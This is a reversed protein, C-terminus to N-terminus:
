AVGADNTAQGRLRRNPLLDPPSWSCTRRWIPGVIGRHCRRGLGEANVITAPERRPRGVTGLVDQGDELDGNGAAAIRRTVRVSGSTAPDDVAPLADHGM